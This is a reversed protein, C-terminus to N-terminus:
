QVGEIYGAEKYAKYQEASLVYTTQNMLDADVSLMNRKIEVYVSLGHKARLDASCEIGKSQLYNIVNADFM